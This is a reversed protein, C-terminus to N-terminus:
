CGSQVTPYTGGCTEPSQEVEACYKAGLPLLINFLKPVCKYVVRTNTCAVGGANRFNVQYPSAEVKQAPVVTAQNYCRLHYSVPSPECGLPKTKDEVWVLQFGGGAVQINKWEGAYKTKCKSPSEPSDCVPSVDHVTGTCSSQGVVVGDVQIVGGVSSLAQCAFVLGFTGLVALGVVAVNALKM